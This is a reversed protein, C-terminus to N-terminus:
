YFVLTATVGPASASLYFNTADYKTSQFRIIGDSTSLIIAVTPTTGLSHPLTFNGPASPTANIAHWGTDATFVVDATVAAASGSLYLNSADYRTGAQFRIIGDSTAQIVAATPTTGLSHAVTFNGPAPAAVSLLDWGPASAVMLDALVGTDSASFFFDACNYKQGDFRIIGDSRAQIIAVTPVFGVSNAVTFAGPNPSVLHLTHWTILTGFIEVQDLQVLALDCNSRVFDTEQQWPNDFRVVYRGTSTAGTADYSFQPVTDWVDYFYFPQHPGEVSDYFNRLTVLDSPTLRKSLQWRKRSSSALLSRQSSGDKYENDLLPFERAHQFAKCIKWPM